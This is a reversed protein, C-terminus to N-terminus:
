SRRQDNIESVLETLQESLLKLLLPKARQVFFHDGEIMKLSFRGATQERWASLCDTSVEEDSLGGFATIPCALPTADRYTYTRIMQFDARLVPLLLKMAEEHELVRAPIGTLRRLTELYGTASLDYSPLLHRPVNPACSASVFLHLPEIGYQVRLYRALEFSIIAGMSHGFLAFPKDWFPRLEKAFIDILLALDTFNPEDWRPGRGPLQVACVEVSSPLAESWGRFIGAFGGAYPFCFLRLAADPNPTHKSLWHTTGSTASM